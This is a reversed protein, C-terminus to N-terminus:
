FIQYKMGVLARISYYETKVPRERQGRYIVYPTNLLNNAEAYVSLKETLNYHISADLTLSKGMYTDYDNTTRLNVMEGTEPDPAAYFSFEMLYPSRYNLALNASFKKGEYFLRSNFVDRAQRPLDQLTPRAEMKMSSSTFSYNLQAGLNKWIGPLFSFKKNIVFEFGGVHAYPANEFRKANVNLNVTNASGENELETAQYATYIHDTVYKYFASVTIMGDLGFFYQYSLDSNWAYTPKLDPNGYIVHFHTYHIEPEGPKMENFNPRRFSRTISARINQKENLSFKLSMMPLVSLYNKELEKQSLNRTFNITDEEVADAIIDVDTQELRLGVNMSFRPTPKFDAMVYGSSVNETYSFSSGVFERYYEIDPGFPLYLLREENANLFNNLESETLFPYVDDVYNGDLESLFHEKRPIDRTDFEGLVIPDRYEPNRVWKEFGIRRSGVKNRFKFGAHLQLNKNWDYTGNLSVVLPDRETHEMTETYARTFQFMTDTPKNAVLNVYEPQINDYSDGYDDFPSDIDLLRMRTTANREDTRNGNEDLYLYDTFYVQKEFEVVYYGNRDDDEEFPVNGFGFHADYQAVKWNVSFRENLHHNGGVEGGIIRNQMINHINQVRISQGVGAVWNYMTKLNYEDDKLLGGFGLVYIENNKNPKYDFRVNAGYSSRTGNYDRLELREISQNENNGYFLEYNDTAWNRNYVSGGVQYGWKKNKSRDSFGLSANWLPKNAKFNHGYGLQLDLSKEQPIYKTIFNASGGIADGEINATLNQNYEIYEILSTPLIDFNMTRGEMEESAVPLRDGNVLASSWDTPTGRFSIYRGEGQDSEMVVGPMRQLAEAANRDPLKEIGEKSVVSLIRPSLKVMQLAKREGEDLAGTVEIEELTAGEELKIDGLSVKQGGKGNFSITRNEFGIFSIEIEQDGAPIGSITFRGDFNSAVGKDSGVLLVAAGPLPGDQGLVRGSVEVQAMLSTSFVSVFILSIISIGRM